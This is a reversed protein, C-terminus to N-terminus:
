AQVSYTNSLIACGCSLSSVLVQLRVSKGMVGELHYWGTEYRGESGICGVIVIDVGPREILAGFGGVLIREGHEM